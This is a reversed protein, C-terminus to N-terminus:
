RALIAKAGPVVRAGIGDGGLDAFTAHALHISRPIGFEIAVM